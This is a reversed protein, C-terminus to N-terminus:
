NCGNFFVSIFDALDDGNPTTCPLNNQGVGAKYGNVRYADAPAGWPNPQPVNPAAGCPIGFGAFVGTATGAFNAPIAIATAFGPQPGTSDFFDAIYDALDDGNVGEAGNYDSTCPPATFVVNLNGSGIGSATNAAIRILVPTGTTVVVNNIASQFTCGTVNANDNCATAAVGCGGYISLVTNLTTGCTNLSLTGNAPPVFRFWVDKGSAAVCSAAGENGAFTNDWPYAGSATIETAGACTDNAPPPPLLEFGLAIGTSPVSSGTAVRILIRQGQALTVREISAASSCFNDSCLVQPGGCSDYTSLITDFGQSCNTIRYDGDQLATYAVWSDARQTGACSAAPTNLYAGCLPELTVTGLGSAELATACTDNSIPAVATVEHPPTTVSGCANSIVCDYTGADSPGANTVQLQNGFSSIAYASAVGNVDVNGTPGVVVPVGNKRFQYTFPGTGSASANVFITRNCMSVQATSTVPAFTPQVCGVGGTRDVM